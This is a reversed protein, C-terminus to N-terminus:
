CAAVVQGRPSSHLPIYHFVTNIGKTRLQSILYKRKPLTSSTNGTMYPKNFPINMFCTSNFNSRSLKTKHKKLM